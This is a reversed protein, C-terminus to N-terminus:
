NKIVSETKCLDNNDRIDIARQIEEESFGDWGQEWLKNMLWNLESQHSSSTPQQTVQQEEM